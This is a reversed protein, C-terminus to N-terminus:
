SWETNTEVEVQKTNSISKLDDPIAETVADNSSIWKNLEFGHQSLPFQLQNSSKLQNKRTEVSKIFDDM